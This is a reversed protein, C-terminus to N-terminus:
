ANSAIRRAQDETVGLFLPAFTRSREGGEIGAACAAWSYVAALTMQQLLFWGFYIPM